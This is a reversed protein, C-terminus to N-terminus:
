NGTRKPEVVMGFFAETRQEHPPKKVMLRDNASWIPRAAESM